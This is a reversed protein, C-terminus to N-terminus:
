IRSEKLFYFDDPQVFSAGRLEVGEPVTVSFDGNVMVVLPRALDARYGVLDIARALKADANLHKGYVAVVAWTEPTTM